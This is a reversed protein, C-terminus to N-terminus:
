SGRYTSYSYPSLLLPVHYHRSPNEIMFVVIVEPFFGGQYAGTDFRLRYVGPALTADKTLFTRIRGDHNTHGEGLHKWEGSVQAELAARVGAAPAGRATDLIHTSVTSM